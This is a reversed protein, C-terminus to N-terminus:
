RYKAEFSSTLNTAIVVKIALNMHEPPPLPPADWDLKMVALQQRISRLDWLQITYTGPCVAALHSGDANFRLHRITAQLPAQLRAWEHGNDPNVLLVSDPRDTIALVRGDASFCLDWAQNDSGDRPISRVTKWSGVEWFQYALKGGAVLWKNDPSFALRASAVFPLKRVLAGSELDWIWIEVEGDEFGCAAVWRGDPSVSVSWMRPQAKFSQLEKRTETNFVRVFSGEALALVRGNASLTVALDKERSSATLNVASGISLTGGRGIQHFKIPWQKLGGRGATYFSGGDPHFAVGECGKEDLWAKDRFESQDRFRVGDGHATVLWHGDPSFDASRPGNGTEGPNRLERCEWGRAVEWLGATGDSPAASMQHDDLSFNAFSTAAATSILQRETWIDWLRLTADWGQSLLLDGGHNFRVYTVSETSGKLTFRITQAAVDWVYIKQDMCGAALFVGSPHWCVVRVPAPHPLSQTVKGTAVESIEVNVDEHSSVALREGSPDFALTWPLAREPFSRVLQKTALDYLVIPGEKHAVALTRSDASFSATRAAVGLPAPNLVIEGQTLEWVKLHFKPSGGIVALYQGNPSLETHGVPPSFDPLRMLETNDSTKHVSIENLSLDLRIYREFSPEFLMGIQGPPKCDWQRAIRIDVLAMCAIAEDRLEPSPRIAAAKRLVDLSGFRQGMRGSFRNARAENLYSERLKETAQKKERNIRFAAIPSGIALALLLVLTATAFGAVLPNRQCWRWGKEARGAARALIPKGELFRGLEDVLDKATGYRRVPSKELCKLCITELDRPIGPNLLRPSPPDNNVVQQLTGTMSEAIFPPRATLLYYVIAGLSYVDSPPGIQLRKGAAQEPPMFNPSGLVQGSVTLDSDGKMQKALGFDTIRPQGSPDILINSPKLDRHLIGQQHAYHIAESITKLYNAAQKPPLPKQGVFEALNQGEVFDMSFYDQGQHQGIEHIAVINPHQLRAASEAEARFRQVDAASALQGALIMKVAVTRNLSVQRAKYVVGMGGRAIEELLEYEGFRRLPGASNDSEVGVDELSVRV